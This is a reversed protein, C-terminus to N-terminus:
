CGQGHRQDNKWDGEYKQGSLYMMIGKGERRGEIFEGYYAAEKYKKLKLNPSRHLAQMDM